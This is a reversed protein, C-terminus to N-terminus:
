RGPGTFKASAHDRKRKSDGNFNFRQLSDSNAYVCVRVRLCMQICCLRSVYGVFGATQTLSNRPDVSVQFWKRVQNYVSPSQPNCSTRWRHSFWVIETDIPSNHSLVLLPFEADKSYILGIHERSSQLLTWPVASALHCITRHNKFDDVAVLM